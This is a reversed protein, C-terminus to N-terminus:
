TGRSKKLLAKLEDIKQPNEAAVNKTEGVDSKLDYLQPTQSNGLEIKTDPNRAQGPGPEIYKWEATRVGLRGNAAHEIVHDRGERNDGVLAASADHCDRGGGAPVPQGALAAFTAVASAASSAADAEASSRACSPSVEISSHVTLFSDTPLTFVWCKRTFNFLFSAPAISSDFRM